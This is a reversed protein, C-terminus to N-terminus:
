DIKNYFYAWASTLMQEDGGTTELKLCDAIVHKRWDVLREREYIKAANSGPMLDIRIGVAGDGNRYCCQAGLPFFIEKDIEGRGDTLLYNLGETLNMKRGRRPTYARLPMLSPATFPDPNLQGASLHGIEAFLDAQERMLQAVKAHLSTGVFPSEAHVAGAETRQESPFKIIKAM